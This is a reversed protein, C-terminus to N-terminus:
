TNPQLANKGSETLMYRNDHKFIFGMAITQNLVEKLEHTNSTFGTGTLTPMKSEAYAVAKQIEDFGAPGVSAELGVMVMMLLKSSTPIM